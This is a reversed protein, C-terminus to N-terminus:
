AEVTAAVSITVAYLGTATFDIDGTTVTLDGESVVETLDVNTYETTLTETAIAYLYETGDTKQVRVEFQVSPQHTAFDLNQVQFNAAGASGITFNGMSVVTSNREMSFLVVANAADSAGGGPVDQWIYRIKCTEGGGGEAPVVLEYGSEDGAVAVIKAADGTEIEPLGTVIESMALSGDEQKMVVTGTEAETTDVVSPQGDSDGQLFSGKKFMSLPVHEGDGSRYNPDFDPM